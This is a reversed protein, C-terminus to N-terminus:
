IFWGHNASFSFATTLPDVEVWGVELVRCIYDRIVLGFWVSGQTGIWIYDRIFTIFIAHLM